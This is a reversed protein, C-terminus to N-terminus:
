RFLFHASITEPVLDVHIQSGRKAAKDALENGDIDAHGPIWILKLDINREKLIRLNKWVGRFVDLKEYAKGQKILIDVASQCDTFVYAADVGRDTESRGVILNLAEVIGQVECTVNDTMRGVFGSRVQPEEDKRHFIVGYGGKGVCASGLVSGDTFAILSDSPLSEYFINFIGRAAEAQVKTRSNSNGVAVSFIQESEMEIQQVIVEPSLKAQVDVLLNNDKLFVQLDKTIYKMHGLPSGKSSGEYFADESELMKRLPHTQSMSMIRIWERSCIENIRFRVPVINAIVEVAGSSSSKFVGLLSKLSSAQVKELELLHCEKLVSWSAIAHEWHPRVLAKYLNIPIDLPIGRRGRLLSKCLSVGPEM